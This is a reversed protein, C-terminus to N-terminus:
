IASMTIKLKGSKAKYPDFYFLTSDVSSSGNFDMSFTTDIKGKLYFNFCESCMKVYVSDDVEGSVRLAKTIYSGKSIDLKLVIADSFDEIIVTDSARICSFALFILLTIVAKKTNM